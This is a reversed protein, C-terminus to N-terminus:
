RSLEKVIEKNLKWFQEFEQIIWSGHKNSHYWLFNKGSVIGTDAQTAIYKGKRNFKMFLINFDGKDAVDLMQEIWKDLVKSEGMLLQHFQFDKYSKCEANFKSFNQGPVIDGKFSRIQGEHLFEKRIQNVGGVYAGSGPSRIFREGYLDSLFNAIDREFSSGKQKSTSPM